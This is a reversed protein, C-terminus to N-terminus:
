GKVQAARRAAITAEYRARRNDSWPFSPGPKGKKAASIKHRNARIGATRSEQDYDNHCPKCLPVYSTVEERDTGHLWAWDRAQRGYCFACHYDSADGYKSRVRNEPCGKASAPVPDGRERAWRIDAARQGKESDNGEGKPMHVRRGRHLRFKRPGPKHPKM